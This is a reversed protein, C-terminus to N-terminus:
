AIHADEDDNDLGEEHQEGQGCAALAATHTVRQRQAHM